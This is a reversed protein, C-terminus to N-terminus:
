ADLAVFDDDITDVLLAAKISASIENGNDFSQRARFTMRGLNSRGLLADFRLSSIVHRYTSGFDGPSGPMVAGGPNQGTRLDVIQQSAMSYSVGPSVLLQPSGRVDLSSISVTMGASEAPTVGHVQLDFALGRVMCDAHGLPETQATVDQFRLGVGPAFTVMRVGGTTATSLGNDWVLFPVPVWRGREPVAATWRRARRAIM